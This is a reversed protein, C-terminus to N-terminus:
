YAFFGSFAVRFKDSLAVPLLNGQGAEAGQRNARRKKRYAVSVSFTCRNKGKGRYKSKLFFKIMM